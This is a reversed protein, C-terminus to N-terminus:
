KSSRKFPLTTGGYNITLSHAHSLVSGHLMEKGRSFVRARATENRLGRSPLGGRLLYPEECVM